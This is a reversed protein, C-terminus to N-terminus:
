YAFLLEMLGIGQLVQAIKGPDSTTAEDMHPLVFVPVGEAFSTLDEPTYKEEPGPEASGCSLVIGVTEIGRRKLADLSLLSHNLTGIATRAVLLLPFGLRDILDILLRHREVPVMIGGAGEVITCDATSIMKLIHEELASITIHKGEAAASRFPSAPLSFRFPTCEELSISGQAARVLFDGDEPYLGDASTKCGTEVPKLGHVHLGHDLGLRVLGAAVLTKGVGTDTGAVFLGRHRFSPNM